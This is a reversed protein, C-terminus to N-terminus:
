SALMLEPSHNPSVVKILSKPSQVLFMHMMEVQKMREFYIDVSVLNLKTCYMPLDCLHVYRYPLFTECERHAVNWIVQM